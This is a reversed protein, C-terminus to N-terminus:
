YGWVIQLLGSEPDGDANSKIYLAPDGSIGIGAGNTVIEQGWLVPLDVFGSDQNVALLVDVPGFTRTVDGVPKTPSTHLYLHVTQPAAVGGTKRELRVQCATVTVGALEAGPTLAYFWAGKFAGGQQLTTTPLWGSGSWTGSDTAPFLSVGMDPVKPPAAPPVPPNALPLNLVGAAYSVGAGRQVIVTSGIVPVVHVPCLVWENLGSCNVQVRGNLPLATVVGKEVSPAAGAKQQDRFRLADAASM